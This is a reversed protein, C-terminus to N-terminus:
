GLPVLHHGHDLRAAQHRKQVHGVLAKGIAQLLVTCRYLLKDVRPQRKEDGGTEAFAEAQVAFADACQAHQALAFVFGRPHQALEFDDDAGVVAGRGRVTARDDCRHHGIGFQARHPFFLQTLHAHADFGHALLQNISKFCRADFLVHTEDGRM